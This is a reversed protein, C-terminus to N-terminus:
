QPRLMTAANAPDREATDQICAPMAAARAPGTLTQERAWTRASYRSVRRTAVIAMANAPSGPDTIQMAAAEARAPDTRM